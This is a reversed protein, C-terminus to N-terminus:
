STPPPPFSPPEYFRQSVHSCSQAEGKLASGGGGRSESRFTDFGTPPAPSTSRRGIRARLKGRSIRIERCTTQRKFFFRSFSSRFSFPSPLWRTGEQGLGSGDKGWSARAEIPLRATAWGSARLLLPPWCQRGFLEVSLVLGGVPDRARIPHEAGRWPHNIQLRGDRSGLAPPPLPPASRINPLPPRKAFAGVM